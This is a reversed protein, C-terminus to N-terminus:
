LVQEWTTGLIRVEPELTIAEQDWVMERLVKALSIVDKYTGGGKNIFFNAHTPSIFINGKQMNKCGLQDLLQGASKGEPNKFFCGLSRGSPQSSKRKERLEQRLAKIAETSSLSGKLTASLIIVSQLQQCKRYGYDLEERKLHVIKGQKNLVTISVIGDLVGKNNTGANMALAGGLTGPIGDLFEFGGVAQTELKNLLNGLPMGAGVTWTDTTIAKCTKWCVDSLKIVLGDYRHEPILVNSGLGLVTWELGVCDCIKVLNALGKLSRPTCAFLATGGIGLFSEHKLPVYTDIREGSQELRSKVLEVWQKVWQHAFSDITGAGVFALLRAEEGEVFDEPILQELAQAQPLYSLLDDRQKAPVEEFAKYVSGIYLRQIKKLIRLFEEYFCHLRSARHPEFALALEGKFSQELHSLLAKLEDPHHAYDNLVLLRQTKLLVEQRRKLGPFSRITESDVKVGTLRKFAQAAITSNKVDLSVTNDIDLVDNQPANTNFAELSLVWDCTRQALRTFANKYDIQSKYHTPHDWNADLIISAHPSFLEMTGDSEDLELIMWEAKPDFHASPYCDEQFEAGLLYNVPIECTKFFHVLYATVTSKGHSGCVVCLKQNSALKEVFEGRKFYPMLGKAAKYIPNTEAIASSYILCSCDSPPTKTWEIWSLKSKREESAYDDWGLVHYGQEHLFLGLPAMGMGGAGLLYVKKAM